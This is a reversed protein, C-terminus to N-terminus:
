HSPVAQRNARLSLSKQFRLESPPPPSALAPGLVRYSNAYVASAGLTNTVTLRVQFEGPVGFAHTVGPVTTVVTSQDDAFDWRYAVIGANTTATSVGDVSNTANFLAIVPAHGLADPLNWPRIVGARQHPKLAVWAPNFNTGTLDFWGSPAALTFHAIPRGAIVAVVPLAGINHITLPSNPLPRLGDDATFPLGDPGLPDQPNVFGPDGGNYSLGDSIPAVPAWGRSEASAAFNNGLAYNTSFGRGM